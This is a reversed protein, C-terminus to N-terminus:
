QVHQYAHRCLHGHVLGFIGMCIEIRMNLFVRACTSICSQPVEFAYSCAAPRRALRNSARDWKCDFPYIGVMRQHRATIDCVLYTYPAHREVHRVHM